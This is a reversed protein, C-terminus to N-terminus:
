FSFFLHHLVPPNPTVGDTESFAPTSNQEMAEWSQPRPGPVLGPGLERMQLTPFLLLVKIIFNNHPTSTVMVHLTSLSM